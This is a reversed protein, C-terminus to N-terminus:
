NKELFDINFTNKIQNGDEYGFKVFKGFDHMLCALLFEKKNLM